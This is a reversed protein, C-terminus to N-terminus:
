GGYGETAANRRPQHPPQQPAKPEGYEADDNLFQDVDFDNQADAMPAQGLRSRARTRSGGAEADHTGQAPPPGQNCRGRKSAPANAA